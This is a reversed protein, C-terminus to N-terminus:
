HLVLSATCALVEQYPQGRNIDVAARGAACGSACETIYKDRSDLSGM